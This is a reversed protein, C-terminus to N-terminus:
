LLLRAGIRITVFDDPDVSALESMKATIMQQKLLQQLLTPPEDLADDALEFTGWHIALSRRCGIVQHLQIAQAPDIHQPAMFWRPAYAGIPIAALDIVGLRQGIEILSASYGTDGAFYVSKNNAKIVWGGWLTRNQDRLRRRGWHKAPVFTAEARGIQVSDWWDLEQVQKAGIATMWSKLGLPVLITMAPFRKILQKVSPRDLHDYHDHSIVLIDIKPLDNVNTPPATKRKPGAFSVPSSRQSFIPDALIRLGGLQFLVSSHGLWWVADDTLNFDAQQWWQAIFAQYGAAPPKPLQKKKRESQWRKIDATKICIPENNQFGYKTHHSKNPDYYPNKKRLM